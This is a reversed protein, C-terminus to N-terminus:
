WKKCCEVIKKIFYSIKSNNGYVYALIFIAWLIILSITIKTLDDPVEILSYGVVILTLLFPLRFLTLEKRVKAEVLYFIGVTSEGILMALILTNDFINSWYLILLSIWTLSVAVCIACFEKKFLKKFIGKVLLIVLFLVTIASLISFIEAM